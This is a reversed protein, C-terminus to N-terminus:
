FSFDTITFDDVHLSLVGQFIAIPQMEQSGSGDNDYYLTSKTFILYDNADLASKGNVINEEAISTLNTFITPDLFIIDSGDQFGKITDQNAKSAASYFSFQDQSAGGTITDKGLGGSLTNGSSGGMITDNGNGGLLINRGDDGYIKDNGDGGDVYNEGNGTYIVDNGSDGLLIDNGDGGYIKDNGIGGYILDDGGYGYLTDNGKYGLLTDSYGSGYITDNGKLLLETFAQADGLIQIYNYATAANFNLNQGTGLSVGNSFQEYSNLKGSVSGTKSYKFSGSYIGTYSGSSISIASSTAYDVYGYWFYPTSM